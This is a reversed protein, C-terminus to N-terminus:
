RTPPREVSPEGIPRCMTRREPQAAPFSEVSWELRMRKMTLWRSFYDYFSERVGRGLEQGNHKTCQNGFWLLIRDVPLLWNANKRPGAYYYYNYSM